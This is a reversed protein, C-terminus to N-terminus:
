KVYKVNLDIASVRFVCALLDEDNIIPPAEM